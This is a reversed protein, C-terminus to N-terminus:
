KCKLHEGREENKRQFGEIGNWRETSVLGGVGAERVQYEGVRPCHAKVFGLAEGRMSTRGPWGRSGMHNSGHTGGHTYKTPPKTGPLEPSVPQNM